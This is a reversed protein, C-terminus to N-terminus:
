QIVNLWDLKEFDKDFTAINKINNERMISVTTCDTFSFKTSKQDKFAKWSNEFVDENIRLIKASSKLEVGALIAKQLNRTRAFTVTVTEDFIYDSIFTKGYKGKIIDDRIQIAKNHNLDSEIELSVLFSSDLFIM